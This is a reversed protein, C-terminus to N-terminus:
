KAETLEGSMLALGLTSTTVTDGNSYTKEGVKLVAAGLGQLTFRGGKPEPLKAFVKVLAYAQAARAPNAAKGKTGKAKAYVATTKTAPNAVFQIKLSANSEVIKKRDAAKLIGDLDTTFLGSATATLDLTSNSYILKMVARLIGM